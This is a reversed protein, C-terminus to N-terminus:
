SQDAHQVNLVANKFKSKTLNIFFEAAEAVIREAEAREGASAYIHVELVPAEVEFGKPHSKVYVTPHRRMAERIIPAMDAEPVGKVVVVREAFYMPPGRARLLPEIYNEFIAEMERPVGPLLVAMKDGKQYLIGPATGVPNPLPRAWRPMKAMKVREETMSYGRSEYKEKIMRLAEENVVAEEGVAKSFAINTLDDPTPGLGGTSIVVDAKQLAEKFAEVIEEEDDPVVVIRKVSYGLHTLKAALWAANTNVM